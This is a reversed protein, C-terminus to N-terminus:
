ESTSSQARAPRVFPGLLMLSGALCGQLGQCEEWTGSTWDPFRDQEQLRDSPELEQGYVLQDRHIPHTHWCAKLM